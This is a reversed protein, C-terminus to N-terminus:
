QGSELHGRIAPDCTVGSALCGAPTAHFAKRKTQLL